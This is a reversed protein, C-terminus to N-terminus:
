ICTCFAQVVVAFVMIRNYYTQRSHLIIDNEADDIFICGSIFLIVLILSLGVFKQM